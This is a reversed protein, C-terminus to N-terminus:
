PRPDTALLSWCHCDRHGDSTLTLGRLLGEYSFGLRQLGREARANEPDTLAQLRHLGLHDFAYAATAASAHHGVGRTRAGAAVWCGIEAHGDDLNVHSLLSAGVLADEGAAADDFVGLMLANGDSLMRPLHEAVFARATDVDDLSLRDNFAFRLVEPDAAARAVAPADEAVLGRLVL